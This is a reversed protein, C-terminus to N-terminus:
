WRAIEAVSVSSVPPSHAHLDPPFKPHGGGLSLHPGAGLQLPQQRVPGSQPQGRRRHRRQEGLLGALDRQGGQDGQAGGQFAGRVVQEVDVGGGQRAVSKTSAPSPRPSRRAPTAAPGTSAASRLIVRPIRSQRRHPRATLFGSRSRHARHWQTHMCAGTLCRQGRQPTSRTSRGSVPRHTHQERIQRIQAAGTNNRSRLRQLSHARPCRRSAFRTSHGRQPFRLTKPGAVPQHPGHECGPRSGFGSAAQTSQSCSVRSM